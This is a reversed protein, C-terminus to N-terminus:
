KGKPKRPDVTDPLCQYEAVTGKVGAARRGEPRLAQNVSATWAARCWREAEYTQRRQWEGDCVQSRLDCARAWLVWASDASASTAVALLCCLTTVVICPWRVTRTPGGRTEMYKQTERTMLDVM